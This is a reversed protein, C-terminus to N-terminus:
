HLLGLSRMMRRWPGNEPRFEGCTRRGCAGCDSGPRYHEHAQRGHGCRCPDVVTRQAPPPPVDAPVPPSAQRQTPLVTGLDPVAPLGTPPTLVSSGANSRGRRDAGTSHGSAADGM